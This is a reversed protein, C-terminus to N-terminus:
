VGQNRRHNIPRIALEIELWQSVRQAEEESVTSDFLYDDLMVLYNSSVESKKVAVRYTGYGPDRQRRRKAEGM